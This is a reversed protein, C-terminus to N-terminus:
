GIKEYYEVELAITEVIAGMDELFWDHWHAEHDNTISRLARGLTCPDTNLIVRLNKLM